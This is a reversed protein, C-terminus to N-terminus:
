TNEYTYFFIFKISVIRSCIGAVRSVLSPTSMEFM